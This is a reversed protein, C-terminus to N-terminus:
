GAMSGPCGRMTDGSPAFSKKPSMRSATTPHDHAPTPDRALTRTVPRQPAPITDPILRRLGGGGSASRSSGSASHCRMWGRSGGGGPPPAGRVTGSRAQMAAITNMHRVEVGQASSGTPSSPQPLTVVQQFRNASHAAAPTNSRRWSCSSSSSPAAPSSSQDRALTSEALTRATLPPGSRRLGPRGRWAHSCTAGPPRAPPTGPETYISPRQNARM